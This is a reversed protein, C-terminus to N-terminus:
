LARALNQHPPGAPKPNCMKEWSFVAWNDNLSLLRSFLIDVEIGVFKVVVVGLPWTTRSSSGGRGDMRWDKLSPPFPLVRPFAHTCVFSIPRCVRFSRHQGQSLSPPILSRITFELEQWSKEWFIVINDYIWSVLHSFWVEKKQLLHWFVTEFIFSFLAFLLVPFHPPLPFFHFADKRGAWFFYM